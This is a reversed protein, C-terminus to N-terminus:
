KNNEWKTLDANLHYEINQCCNASFYTVTNDAYMVVQCHELCNPLDNVYILFLLPGLISGQAVGVPVKQQTSQCNEVSTVQYRSELYSVFWKVVQSSAGITKLKEVLLVHDVTDFAKSLKLFVAGTFGGKDLSQLINDTFHALATVTSLKPRFGFPNLTLFENASLFGYPQQHVARELIKSITPLVTVPRYNNCDTRDGGKFLATM